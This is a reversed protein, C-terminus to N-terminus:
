HAKEEFLVDLKTAYNQNLKTLNSFLIPTNLELYSFNNIKKLKGVFWIVFIWTFMVVNGM